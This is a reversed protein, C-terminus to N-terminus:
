SGNRIKATTRQGEHCALKTRDHLHVHDQYIEESTSDRYSVGSLRCALNPDGFEKEGFPPYHMLKTLDVLNQLASMKAGSAPPLVHIIQAYHTIDLNYSGRVQRVTSIASSKPLHPLHNRMPFPLQCLQHTFVPNETPTPFPAICQLCYSPSLLAM